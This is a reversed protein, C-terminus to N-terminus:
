RIGGIKVPRSGSSNKIGLISLKYNESRERNMNFCCKLLFVGSVHLFNIEVELTLVKLSQRGGEGVGLDFGPDTM